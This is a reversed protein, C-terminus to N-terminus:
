DEDRTEQNGTGLEKKFWDVEPTDLELPPYPPEPEATDEADPEDVPPEPTKPSM